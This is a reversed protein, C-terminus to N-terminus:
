RYVVVFVTSTQTSMGNLLSVRPGKQEPLYPEEVQNVNKKKGWKKEDQYSFLLGFRLVIVYSRYFM